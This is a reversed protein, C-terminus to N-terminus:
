GNPIDKRAKHKQREPSAGEAASLGRPQNLEKM